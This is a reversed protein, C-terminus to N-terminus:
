GDRWRSTSSGQSACSGGGHTFPLDYPPSFQHPAIELPSPEDAAAGCGTQPPLLTLRLGRQIPCAGADKTFDLHPDFIQVQNRSRIILVDGTAFLSSLGVGFQGEPIHANSNEDSLPQKRKSGEGLACAGEFDEDRWLGDNQVIFFPGNIEALQTTLCSHHAHHRWDLTLEVKGAALESDNANQLMEHIISSPDYDKLIGKLRSTLSQQQGQPKLWSYRIPALFGALCVQRLLKAGLDQGCDEPIENLLIQSAYKAYRGPASKKWDNMEGKMDNILVESAKRLQGASDPLLIRNKWSEPPKPATALPGVAARAQKGKGKKGMPVVDQSPSGAREHAALKTARWLATVLEVIQKDFRKTVEDKPHNQKGKEGDKVVQQSNAIRQLASVIMEPGQGLRIDNCFSSFLDLDNLKKELVLLFPAAKSVHSSDKCVIDPSSFENEDGIWVWNGVETTLHDADATSLNEYIHKLATQLFCSYSRNQKESPSRAAHEGVVIKLQKRVFEAQVEKPVGCMTLFESNMKEHALHRVSWVCFRDTWLNVDAPKYFLSDGDIKMWSKAFNRDNANAEELTAVPVFAIDALIKAAERQEAKSKKRGSSVVYDALNIAINRRFDDSLPPDAADTRGAAIDAKAVSVLDENPIVNRLGLKRLRSVVQEERWQSHLYKKKVSPAALLHPYHREEESNGCLVADQPRLYTEAATQVFALGQLDEDSLSLQQKNERLIEQMFRPCDSPSLISSRSRRSRSTFLLERITSVKPVNCYTVLLDRVKRDESWFVPMHPVEKQLEKLRDLSLLHADKEGDSPPQLVACMDSDDLDAYLRNRTGGFDSFLPLCSLFSFDVQALNLKMSQPLTGSSGTKNKSSLASPSSLIGALHGRLVLWESDLTACRSTDQASNTNLRRMKSPKATGPSLSTSNDRIKDKVYKSLASLLKNQDPGQLRELLENMEDLNVSKRSSSACSARATSELVSINCLHLVHKCSKFGSGVIQDHNKWPLLAQVKEVAATDAGATAICWM